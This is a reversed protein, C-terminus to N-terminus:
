LITCKVNDNHKARYAATSYDKPAFKCPIKEKLKHKTCFSNYDKNYKKINDYTYEGLASAAAGIMGGHQNIIKKRKQVSVGKSALARLSKKHKNLKKKHHSKLPVNGQLINLAVESITNIQETTAGKILKKRHKEEVQQLADLFHKNKAVRTPGSLAKIKQSSLHSIEQRATQLLQRKMTDEASENPRPKVDLKRLRKWQTSRKQKPKSPHGALARLKNFQAIRKKATVKAQRKPKKKSVRKRVVKTATPEMDLNRLRKWDGRQIKRARDLKQLNRLTRHEKLKKKASVKAARMPPHALNRLKQFQQMRKNAVDKTERHKKPKKRPKSTRTVSPRSPRTLRDLFLKKGMERTFAGGKQKPIKTLDKMGTSRRLPRPRPPRPLSSPNSLNDVGPYRQLPRPRPPRSPSPTSVFRTPPHLPPPINFTVKKKPPM